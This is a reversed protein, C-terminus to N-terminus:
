ILKTEQIACGKLVAKMTDPIKREINSSTQRFFVELNWITHGKSQKTDKPSFKHHFTEAKPSHKALKRGIV